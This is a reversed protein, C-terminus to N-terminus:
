YQPRRTMDCRHETFKRGSCPLSHMVWIGTGGISTAALGLWRARARGDVVRARSTCLLGLASGVVSVGYALVATVVDFSFGQM